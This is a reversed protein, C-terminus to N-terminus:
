NSNNDKEYKLWKKLPCEQESWEAKVSMFCGCQTCRNEKYHECSNCIDLREKKVEEPVTKMGTKIHNVSSTIFNSAQKILSPFSKEELSGNYIAGCPCHIPLIKVEKYLRGCNCKYDITLSM